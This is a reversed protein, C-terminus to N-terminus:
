LVHIWWWAKKVGRHHSELEHVFVEIFVNKKLTIKGLMYITSHRVESHM